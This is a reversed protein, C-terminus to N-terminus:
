VHARGIQIADADYGNGSAKASTPKKAPKKAPKKTPAKTAM